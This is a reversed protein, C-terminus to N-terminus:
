QNCLGLQEFHRDIVRNEDFPAIAQRLLDASIPSELAQQIATAMASPDCVPVLYGFRGDQLLERPGTQCDTAVPTCGCMMAEILVNPMGEVLSSLVFVDSRYFYKLPNDVYGILQVEDQLNESNVLSQLESRLPGDGLLLLRASHTSRLISFAEILYRFGKWPSLSGAAVLVPHSKDTLWPHMVCERMRRHVSANVVPNYVCVHPARPFIQRYQAVMDGSVCTMSNFRSMTIRAFQKLFWRKSLFVSSYTDFPTVRSSASIKVRSFVILAALSVQINLHDEATFILDPKQTYIERALLFLTSRIHRCNWFLTTVTSSPAVPISPDVYCFILKVSHGRRSLAEALRVQALPVGSFSYRACLVLIKM